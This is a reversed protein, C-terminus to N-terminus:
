KKVGELRLGNKFVIYADEPNGHGCCANAVGPLAGLCADHGEPTPLQGCNGCPRDKFTEAVPENNDVYRWTTGDACRISHGRFKSTPM